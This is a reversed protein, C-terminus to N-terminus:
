KKINEKIEEFFDKIHDKEEFIKMADEALEAPDTYMSEWSNIRQVIAPSSKGIISIISLAVRTKLANLSYATRSYLDIEFNQFAELSVAPIEAAIYPAGLVGVIVLESTRFGQGAQWGREFNELKSEGLKAWLPNKFLEERSFGDRRNAEYQTREAGTQDAEAQNYNAWGFARDALSNKSKGMVTVTSLQEVDYRGKKGNITTDKFEMGNPDLYKIPNNNCYNYPSLWYYNAVIPDIQNWRGIQPDQMRAGYDYEELGSGDSFEEHQLEKGNYKYKNELWGAAKSCIGAM